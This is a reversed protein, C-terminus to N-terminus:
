GQNAMGPLYVLGSIKGPHSQSWTALVQRLPETDTIIRLPVPSNAIDTELIGLYHTETSNWAAGHKTADTLDGVGALGPIQATGYIQASIQGLDHNLVAMQLTLDTNNSSVPDIVALTPVDDGLLGQKFLYSVYAENVPYIFKGSLWVSAFTTHRGPKMKLGEQHFITPGYWFSDTALIGLVLACCGVAFGAFRRSPLQPRRLLHGASGVSVLAIVAWGQVSKQYYYSTALPQTQYAAFALVAVGGLVTVILGARASPLRRAARTAFGVACLVAIVALVHVALPVTFGTELAVSAGNLGNTAGVLYESLSAPIAFVAVVLAFKWHPLWRKRYIAGSVVIALAAFPAFLEYTLFLAVFLAAVLVIHTRPGLPPRLCLAALVALLAMGFIQPDWTSWIGATYVGVSLFAGIASVLFVRRWGALAPGGAWRAAWAVAFVFLGYGISVYVNYRNM